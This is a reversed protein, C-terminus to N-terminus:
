IIFFIVNKMIQEFKKLNKVMVQQQTLTTKTNKLLSVKSNVPWGLNELWFKKQSTQNSISQNAFNVRMSKGLGTADL